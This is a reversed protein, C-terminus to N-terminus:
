RLAGQLAGSRRLKELDRIERHNVLLATRREVAGLKPHRTMPWGWASPM